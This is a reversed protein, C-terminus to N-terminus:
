CGTLRAIARVLEAAAVPKRCLRNRACREDLTAPDHGTVLLTPVARAALADIVPISTEGRLDLDVVAADLGASQGVLALAEAVSAAQGTVIGGAEEIALRLDEAILYEDEVILIHRGALLEAM